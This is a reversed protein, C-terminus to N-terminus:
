RGGYIDSRMSVTRSLRGENKVRRHSVADSERPRRIGPSFASRGDLGSELKRRWQGSPWRTFKRRGNNSDSM